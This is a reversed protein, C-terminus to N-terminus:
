VVKYNSEPSSCALIALSQKEEGENREWQYWSFGKACFRAESWQVYM